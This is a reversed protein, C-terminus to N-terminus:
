EKRNEDLVEQGKKSLALLIEACRRGIVKQNGELVGQGAAGLYVYCIEPLSEARYGFTKVGDLAIYSIPRLSDKLRQSIFSQLNPARLFQPLDNDQYERTDEIQTLGLILLFSYGTLLRTEDDLVVCPISIGGFKLMGEHTSKLM